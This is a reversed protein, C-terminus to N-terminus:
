LFQIHKVHETSKPESEFSIQMLDIGVFPELVLIILRWFTIISM